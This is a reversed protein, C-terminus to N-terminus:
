GCLYRDRNVVEFISLELDESVETTRLGDSDPAGFQSRNWDISGIALVEM